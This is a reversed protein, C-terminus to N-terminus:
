PSGSTNKDAFFRTKSSVEKEFSLPLLQLCFMRIEDWTGRQTVPRSIGLGPGIEEQEEEVLLCFGVAQHSPKSALFM